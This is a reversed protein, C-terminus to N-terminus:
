PARAFNEKGGNDVVLTQVSRQDTKAGINEASYYFQQVSSGNHKRLDSHSIPLVFHLVRFFCGLVVGMGCFVMLMRGLVMMFRRLMMLTPVVLLSCVMGMKGLGMMCFRCTMLGLGSFSMKLMM